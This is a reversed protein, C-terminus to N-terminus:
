GREGPSTKESRGIGRDRLKDVLDTRRLGANANRVAMQWAEPEGVAFVKRRGRTLGTYVLNRQLMLFHQKLLPMVVVPYESGQSKHISIAYALQIEGAEGREFEHSAEGFRIVLTRGDASMGTIRGVDGNFLNKDYNNRTQIVKDGIRYLADGYTFEFPLPRRTKERFHSQRARDASQAARQRAVEPPNLAAQLEKNLNQIGILGRHMPSLVQIDDIPDLGEVRPLYDTVLALTKQLAIEPSDALIFHFDADPRLDSSRNATYPLAPNGHLVAHAVAVISSDSEQRFIQDLRTTAIAGSRILDQLVNGAGISPLQDADGVILLHAANPLARLLSASLRNDLMSAEDVILMSASLPNEENHYFAGRGPDWKLLRHITAAPHGTSDALRQAARGTPSALQLRVKKARLIEVVARLITTKGTGPGGTLISVKSQLATRIATQQGDSFAIGARDQAWQIAAEIKISPFFSRTRLLKELSDAIRKEARATAPLQYGAAGDRPCSVLDERQVLAPLRPTIEEGKLELLKVAAAVLEPALARTHGEEELQQMAHLIGADIRAESDNPFGLNRAIRDATKFGIRDIDRALRYPEQELIRRTQDGYKKVLRVCQNSTIGYTQLFMLVDRVARQEDWARKIATARTRGIGDVEQLRKSEESIIRLTEAGFKDVIRDAYTPGIGGILGSGLYKRIGHVTSPLKSQFSVIKFQEGHVKHISWEGVLSLTEGCQVGPLTGTIVVQRGRTGGGSLRFEGVVYANDENAYVIRELVGELRAQPQTSSDPM